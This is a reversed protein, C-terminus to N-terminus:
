ADHDGKNSKNKKIISEYKKHEAEGYHIRYKFLFDYTKNNADAPSDKKGLLEHKDYIYSVRRRHYFKECIHWIEEESVDKDMAIVIEKLDLAAIINSQIDSM